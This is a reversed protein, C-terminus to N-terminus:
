STSETQASRVLLLLEHARRAAEEAGREQPEAAPGGELGRALVDIAEALAGVQGELRRM